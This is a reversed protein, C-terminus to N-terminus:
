LSLKILGIIRAAELKCINYKKTWEITKLLELNHMHYILFQTGQDKINVCQIMMGDDNIDVWFMYCITKIFKSKKLDYTILKTNDETVVYLRDKYQCINNFHTIHLPICRKKARIDRMNLGRDNLYYVIGTRSVYCKHVSIGGKAILISSTLNIQKDYSDFILERGRLYLTYLINNNKSINACALREIIYQFKDYCERESLTSKFFDVLLNCSIYRHHLRRDPLSFLGYSLMYIRPTETGTDKELYKTKIGREFLRGSIKFTKSCTKPLKINEIFRPYAKEFCLKSTLDCWKLIELIMEDPLIM